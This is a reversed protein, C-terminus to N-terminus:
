VSICFPAAVASVQLPSRVLGVRPQQALTPPVPFIPPLMRAGHEEMEGMVTAIPSVRDILSCHPLPDVSVHVVMRGPIDSIQCGVM